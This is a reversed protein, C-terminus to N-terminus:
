AMRARRKNIEKRVTDWDISTKICRGVISGSVGSKEGEKVSPVCHKVIQNSKIGVIIATGEELYESFFVERYKRKNNRNSQRLFMLDLDDFISLLSASYIFM